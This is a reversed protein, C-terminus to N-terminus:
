YSNRERQLVHDKTAEDVGAVAHYDREETGLIDIITYSTHNDATTALAIGDDGNATLADWQVNWDEDPLISPGTSQRKVVYTAGQELSIGTLMVTDGERSGFGGGNNSYMFAYNGLAVTAGTGNYIEIYTNRFDTGAEKSSTCRHEFIIIESTTPFIYGDQCSSPTQTQANLAAGILAACSLSLLQKYDM